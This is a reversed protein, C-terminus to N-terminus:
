RGDPETAMEVYELTALSEKDRRAAFGALVKQKWADPSGILGANSVTQQPARFPRRRVLPRVASVLGVVSPIRTTELAEEFSHPPLIGPLCRTLLTKGSGPPSVFLLNRWGVEAIKLARRAFEQGRVDELDGDGDEASEQQEAAAIRELALKGNLFAVVEALTHAPYVEVERELAAEAANEPPLVLSRIGNERAALAVPLVSRV